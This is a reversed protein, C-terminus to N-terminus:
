NPRGKIDGAVSLWASYVKARSEMGVGRPYSLRQVGLGSRLSPLQITMCMSGDSRTAVSRWM